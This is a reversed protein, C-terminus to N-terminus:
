DIIVKRTSNGQRVIYLGPTLYTARTGDIHYYEMESSQNDQVSIIGTTVDERVNTFEKWGPAAKYSALTGNPVILVAKAPVNSFSNLGEVDILAPPVMANCRVFSLNDLGNASRAQGSGFLYPSVKKVADHIVLTSPEYDVQLNIEGTEPHGISTVVYTEGDKEITSPIELIDRSFGEPHAYALVHAESDSHTNIIWQEDAPRMEEINKFQKWGAAVKYAASTGFPVRLVANEDVEWFGTEGEDPMHRDKIIAPPTTALSTFVATTVSGLYPSVGTITAPMIFNDLKYSLDVIFDGEMSSGIKTTIYDKGDIVFSSPVELEKIDFGSGNFAEVGCETESETWTETDRVKEVRWARLESPELLATLKIDGTVTFRYPNDTEGDNWCKFDHNGSNWTFAIEAEDGDNYFDAGSVSGFGDKEIYVEVVYDYGTIDKRTQGEALWYFLHGNKDTTATYEEQGLHNTLVYTKNPSLGYQIHQHYELGNTITPTGEKLTAELTGGNHYVLTPVNGVCGIGEPIGITNSGKNDSSGFFHADGGNLILVGHNESFTNTTYWVSGSGFGAGGLIGYGYVSGSDIILTGVSTSNIAGGIGAGAIWSGNKTSGAKAVLKGDGSIRLTSEAPLWIGASDHGGRINNEGILTMNVYGSVINMGNNDQGNDRRVEWRDITLNDLAIVLPNDKSGGVIELSNTTTSSTTLIYPGSCETFTGGVTYGDETIKVDGASVDITVYEYGEITSFKSFTKGWVPDKKYSDLALAPVVLEGDEPINDFGEGSHLSPPVTAKCIVKKFSSREPAMMAHIEAFLNAPVKRITQPIVLITPVTRESSFYVGDAASGIETVAYTDGDIEFTEPIAVTGSVFYRGGDFSRVYCEGAKDSIPSMSWIRQPNPKLVLGITESKTVTYKVPNETSGFSWHDFIVEDTDINACLETEQGPVFLGLGSVRFSSDNYNNQAQLQVRGDLFDDFTQGELTWYYMDGYVDASVGCKQQNLMGPLVVTYYPSQRYLIQRTAQVGDVFPKTGREIIAELEGGNIYLEVGSNRTGIGETIYNRYPHYGGFFHAAGGNITLTGGSINGNYVNGAGSGFGYGGGVSYGYVSGSNIVLHGNHVELNETEDPGIGAGCRYTYPSGTDKESGYAKLVGDGEITLYADSELALGPFASISKLTTEGEIVFTVHGKSIKVPAGCKERDGTTLDKDIDVDSLKVVLMDTPDGGGEITLSNSTPTSSTIVYTFSGSESNGGQMYGQPTIEINGQALDLNKDEAFSLM